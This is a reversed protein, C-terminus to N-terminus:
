SIFLVYFTDCSQSLINKRVITVIFLQNGLNCVHPEPRNINNNPSDSTLLQQECYKFLEHSKPGRSCGHKTTAKCMIKSGEKNRMHHASYHLSSHELFHHNVCTSSSLQRQVLNKQIPKELYVNKIDVSKCKLWILSM